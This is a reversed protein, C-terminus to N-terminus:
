TWGRCQAYQHQQQHTLQPYSVSDHNTNCCCSLYASTPPFTGIEYIIKLRVASSICLVEEAEYGVNIYIETLKVTFVCVSNFVLQLQRQVLLTPGCGRVHM